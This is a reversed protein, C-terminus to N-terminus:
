KLTKFDISQQLALGKLIEIDGDNAFARRPLFHFIQANPLFLFGAPTSFVQSYAAWETESKAKPSTVVIKEASFSYEIEMNADPRKSFERKALYPSILLITILYAILAVIIVFPITFFAARNGAVIPDWLVYGICLITISHFILRRTTNIRRFYKRGTKLDDATWRFKAVIPKMFDPSVPQILSISAAHRGFM